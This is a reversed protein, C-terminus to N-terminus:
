SFMKSFKASQKKLERVHMQKARALSNSISKDDPSLELAQKFAEMAEEYDKLEVLAQAQRFWAKTLTPDHKLIETCLKVVKDHQKLKLLCM